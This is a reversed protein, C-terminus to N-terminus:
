IRHLFMHTLLFRSSLGLNRANDEILVGVLIFHDFYCLQGLKPLYCTDGLLGLTLYCM